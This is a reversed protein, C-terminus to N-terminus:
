ATAVVRAWAMVTKLGANSLTLRQHRLDGPARRDNLTNSPKFWSRMTISASVPGETNAGM